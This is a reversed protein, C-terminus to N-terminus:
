GIELTWMGRFGSAGLTVVAKCTGVASDFAGTGGDIEYELRLSDESLPDADTTSGAVEGSAISAFIEAGDRRRVLTIDGESANALLGINWTVLGSLAWVGDVSDGEFSVIQTGNLLEQREVISGEFEIEFKM